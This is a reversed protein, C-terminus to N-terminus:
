CGGDPFHSGAFCTTPAVPVAGLYTISAARQVNGQDSLEQQLEAVVKSKDAPQAPTPEAAGPEPDIEHKGM